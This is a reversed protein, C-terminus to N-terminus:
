SETMVIQSKTLVEKELKLAGSEGRSILKLLEAAESSGPKGLQWAAGDRSSARQGVGLQGKSLWALVPLGM